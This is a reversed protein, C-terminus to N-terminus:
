LSDMGVITLELNLCGYERLFYNISV